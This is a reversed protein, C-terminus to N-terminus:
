LYFFFVAGNDAIFYHLFHFTCVSPFMAGAHRNQLGPTEGGCTTRTTLAAREKGEERVKGAVKLEFVSIFSERFFTVNVM